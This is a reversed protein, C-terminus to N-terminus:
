AAAKNQLEKLAKTVDELHKKPSVKPMVQAVEGEPSIIYTMRAVGMFKRGYMSKEAWAGYEELMTHEPDGLLTFNLGEKQEFKKLADPKDPSIGIVSANLNKLESLGDRLDCAQTTCGPTLARPYFYLVVWKGKFQSLSISKGDQNKLNFDPATTGIDLLSM